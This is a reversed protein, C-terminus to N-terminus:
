LYFRRIPTRFVSLGEIALRKYGASIEPGYISERGCIPVRETRLGEVAKRRSRKTKEMRNQTEPGRSISWVIFM